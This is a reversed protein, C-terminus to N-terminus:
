IQSRGRLRFSKIVSIQFTGCPRLSSFSDRRSDSRDSYPQPQPPPRGACRRRRRRRAPGGKSFGLGGGCSSPSFLFPRLSFRRRGVVGHYASGERVWCPSAIRSDRRLPKTSGNKSSRQLPRRSGGCSLSVGRRAPASAGTFRNSSPRPMLRGQQPGATPSPLSNLFRTPRREGRTLGRVCLGELPSFELTYLIYQVLAPRASDRAFM